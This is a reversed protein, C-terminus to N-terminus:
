NPHRTGSLRHVPLFASKRQVQTGLRGGQALKPNEVLYSLFLYDATTVLESSPLCNWLCGGYRSLMWPRTSSPELPAM